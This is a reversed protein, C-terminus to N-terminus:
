QALHCVQQATQLVFQQLQHLVKPQSPSNDSFRVTGNEDRLYYTFVSGARPSLSLHNSAAEHVEEQIARAEVLAHDSLKLTHGGNCHVGGEENVLLTLRAQPSSGSRTVIFLDAAKVGGCGALALCAVLVAPALPARM